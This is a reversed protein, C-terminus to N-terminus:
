SRNETQDPKDPTRCAYELWLAAAVLALSAAGGLIAVVSDHKAVVYYSRKGWLYVAMGSWYGLSLAGVLSSAKALALTRAVGIPDIPKTDPRRHVRNRTAWGTAAEGLAFVFVFVPVLSPPPVDPYFRRAFGWGLVGALVALLLLHRIKTPAVRGTSM